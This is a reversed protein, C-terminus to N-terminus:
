YKKRKTIISYENSTSTTILIFGAASSSSKNKRTSIGRIERQRTKEIEGENSCLDPFIISRNKYHFLKCM